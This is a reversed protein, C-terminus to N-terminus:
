GGGVAEFTEGSGGCRECREGDVRGAGGCAACVTPAANANEPPVEDGPAMDNLTGEM